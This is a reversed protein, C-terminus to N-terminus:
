NQIRKNRILNFIYQQAVGAFPGFFSSDKGPFYMKLAKNMWTDIPFADLRNFGYLLTCNAVKPGVGKINYLEKLAKDITFKKIEEFNVKNNSIKRAADLIYNARFGAKLIKLDELTLNALKEYSPFSYKNVVKDGFCICLNQIIFKIRKINNNQSIIFSCLAEWPDQRLIRINNSKKVAEAIIPHISMLNEKIKTYNTCIDFYNSWMKIVDSGSYTNEKQSVNVTLINNLVDSDAFYVEAECNDVVGEWKGQNYTWRFCQGCSFTEMLDLDPILLKFIM